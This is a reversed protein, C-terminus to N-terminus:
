CLSLKKNKGNVNEPVSIPLILKLEWIKLRSIQERYNTRSIKLFRFSTLPDTQRDDPQSATQRGTQKDTRGDARKERELKREKEGYRIERKNLYAIM